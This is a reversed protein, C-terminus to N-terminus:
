SITRVETDARQLCDETSPKLEEASDNAISESSNDM